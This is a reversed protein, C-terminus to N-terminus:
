GNKEIKERVCELVKMGHEMLKITHYNSCELVNEKGKYLPVVTSRKKNVPMNEGILLGNVVGCLEKACVENSFM